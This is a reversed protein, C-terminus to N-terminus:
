VQEPGSPLAGPVLPAEDGGPRPEEDKQLNLKERLAEAELNQHFARLEDALQQHGEEALVVQRLLAAVDYASAEPASFVRIVKLLLECLRTLDERSSQTAKVLRQEAERVLPETVQTRLAEATDVRSANGILGGLLGGLLAAGALAWGTSKGAAKALLVGGVAGLAGVQKASQWDFFRPGTRVVAQFRDALALTTATDVDERLAQALETNLRQHVQEVGTSLTQALAEKLTNSLQRRPCPLGPLAERQFQEAVGPLQSALRAGEEVLLSDLRTRARELTQPKVGALEHLELLAHLEGLAAGWAEVQQTLQERQAVFLAGLADAGMGEVEPRGLREVADLGRYAESGFPVAEFLARTHEALRRAFRAQEQINKEHEM